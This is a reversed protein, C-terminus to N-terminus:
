KLTHGVATLSIALMKLPANLIEDPFFYDPEPEGLKEFWVSHYQRKEKNTWRITDGVKISIEAPTFQYKIIEIDHTKAHLFSITLILILSLLPKIM